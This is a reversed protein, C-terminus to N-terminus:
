GAGQELDRIPYFVWRYFFRLFVVLLLIGGGGISFVIWLSTRSPHQPEGSLRTLAAPTETSLPMSDRALATPLEIITEDMGRFNDSSGFAKAYSSNKEILDGLSCLKERITEVLGKEQVGRDLDRGLSLTTHLSEEYSKLAEQVKPLQSRWTARME